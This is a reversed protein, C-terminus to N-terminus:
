DKSNEANLSSSKVYLFRNNSGYKKMVGSDLLDKRLINSEEKTLRLKLAAIQNFEHKHITRGEFRKALMALSKIITM